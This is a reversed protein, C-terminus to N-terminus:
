FKGWVDQVEAFGQYLRIVIPLNREDMESDLLLSKCTNRPPTASRM